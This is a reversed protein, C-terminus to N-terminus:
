FLMQIYMIPIDGELLTYENGGFDCIIENQTLPVQMATSTTITATLACLSLITTLM